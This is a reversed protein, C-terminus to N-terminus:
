ASVAQKVAAAPKKAKLADLEDLRPQVEDRLHRAWRELDAKHITQRRWDLIVRGMEEIVSDM